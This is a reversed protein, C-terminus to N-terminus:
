LRGNRIHTVLTDRVAPVVTDQSPYPQRSSTRLKFEPGRSVLKDKLLANLKQLGQKKQDKCCLDSYLVILATTRTQSLELCYKEM